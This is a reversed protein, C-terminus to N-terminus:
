LVKIRFALRQTIEPASVRPPSATHTTNHKYVIIRGPKNGVVKEPWGLNYGRKWHKAGTEEDNYFTLEGGWDPQWVKNLVFLVTYYPDEDTVGPGTDKHMQGSREGIKDNKMPDTSRGNLYCTFDSISGPVDYKDYYSEENIYYGKPGGLGTITEKLGADLSAKGDFIQTNITDFIDYAEKSHRKTSADDWGIPHRYMSFRFLSLMNEIPTDVGLIHKSSSKGSLDPIYEQMSVKRPVGTRQQQKTASLLPTVGIWKCYWSLKQAADYMAHHLEESVLGDYVEVDVM